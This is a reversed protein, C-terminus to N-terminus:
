SEVARVSLVPIEAARVVHETVSGLLWRNVGSRGHTGMVVLDVDHENAYELIATEPKGNGVAGEITDVESAEARLIAEDLVDRGADDLAQLMKARTARHWPKSTDVLTLLHLRAGTESALEIGRQVAADASDSGDTPVLVDELALTPPLTTDQHVTLVPASSRRLTRETVSGLVLRDLGARGRTGMVLLDCGYDDAYETLVEHTPAHSELSTTKADVGAEDAMTAIEELADEGVGAIAGAWEDRADYPLTGLEVVHIAEITAEFRAAITVAAEAATRAVKSGDTPVLITRFM